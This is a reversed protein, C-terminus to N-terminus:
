SAGELTRMFVFVARKQPVVDIWDITDFRSFDNRVDEIIREKAASSPADDIHLLRTPRVFDAEVRCGLSEKGHLNEKAECADHTRRYTVLFMDGYFRHVDSSGAT